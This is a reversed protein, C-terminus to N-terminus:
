ERRIGRGIREAEIILPRKARNMRSIVHDKESFLSLTRLRPTLSVIWRSQWRSCASTWSFFDAVRVPGACQCFITSKQIQISYIAVLTWSKRSQSPSGPTLWSIVWVMKIKMWYWTQHFDQVNSRYISSKVWNAHYEIHICGRIIQLLTMM